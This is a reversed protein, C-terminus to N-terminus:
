LWVGSLGNFELESEGEDGKVSAENAIWAGSLVYVRGNAFEATVTMDTATRLFEIPFDKTTIATLKVFPTITTEKFGVTRGSANIPERKQDMLPCELGGKVEFQTGDAKCFCTGAVRNGM